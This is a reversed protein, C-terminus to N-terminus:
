PHTPPIAADAPEGCSRLDHTGTALRDQSGPTPPLRSLSVSTLSEPFACHTWEYMAASANVEGLALDQNPLVRPQRAKRYRSDVLHGRDDARHSCAILHLEPPPTSPVPRSWDSTKQRLM